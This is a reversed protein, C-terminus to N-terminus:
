LRKVRLIGTLVTRDKATTDSLSLVERQEKLTYFFWREEEKNVYFDFFPWLKAM